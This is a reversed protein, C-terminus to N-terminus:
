DGYLFRTSIALIFFVTTTVPIVAGSPDLMGSCGEVIRLGHLTLNLRLPLVRWNRTGTGQSM